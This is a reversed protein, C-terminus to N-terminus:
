RQQQRDGGERLGREGRLRDVHAGTRVARKRQHRPQPRSRGDVHNAADIAPAPAVDDGAPPAAPDVGPIERPRDSAPRRHDRKRHSRVPTGVIAPSRPVRTLRSPAVPSRRPESRRRRWWRARPRRNRTRRRRLQGDCSRGHRSRGAPRRFARGVEPRGGGSLPGALYTRGVAALASLLAYQTASYRVRCLAMLFAVFAATGMGGCLNELGVVVAMSSDGAACGQFLGLGGGRLVEISPGPPHGDVPREGLERDTGEPFLDSAAYVDIMPM